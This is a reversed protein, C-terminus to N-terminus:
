CHHPKWLSFIRFNCPWLGEADSINITYDCARYYDALQEPSVKNTSLMVQGDTLGLHEIIHPLDQGHPDQADTHMLLSAKDHGVQDLWEKFWWIITGSQKRRANRNNWFFVKKKPNDMSSMDDIAKRVEKVQKIEEPTTAPKFFIQTCRMHYIVLTLM